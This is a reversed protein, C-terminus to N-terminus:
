AQAACSFGSAASGASRGQRSFFLATKEREPKMSPAGQLLPDALLEARLRKLDDMLAQTDDVELRGVIFFRSAGDEGILVKGHRGFLTTDGAEDVFIHLPADSM